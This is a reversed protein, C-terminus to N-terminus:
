QQGGRTDLTLQDSRSPGNLHPRGEGHWYRTRAMQQSELHEGPVVDLPRLVNGVDAGQDVDESGLVLDQCDLGRVEDLDSPKVAVAVNERAYPFSERGSM